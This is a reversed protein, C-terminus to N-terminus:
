RGPWLWRCLLLLSSERCNRGVLLLSFEDVLIALGFSCPWLVLIPDVVFCFAFPLPFPFPRELLGVGLVFLAQLVVIPAFPAFLGLFCPM